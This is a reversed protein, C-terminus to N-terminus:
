TIPSHRTPARSREASRRHMAGKKDEDEMEM